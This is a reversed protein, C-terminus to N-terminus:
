NRTVRFSDRATDDTINRNGNYSAKVKWKGLKRVEPFRVSGSGGNLDASRTYATGGKWIRVRVDGRATVGTSTGVRVRAKPHDGRDVNGVSVRANSKTKLVQLFASDASSQFRCTPNYKARVEYRGAGLTPLRLNAIGNNNLKDTRSEGDVRVTVSGSPTTRRVGPSYVEVRAFINKGYQVKKRNLNLDTATVIGAPYQCGGGGKPAASASPAVALAGGVLAISAVSTVIAKRIM